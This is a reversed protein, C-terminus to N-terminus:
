SLALGSLATSGTFGVLRRVPGAFVAVIVAFGDGSSFSLDCNSLRDRCRALDRRLRLFRDSFAASSLCEATSSPRLAAFVGVFSSPAGVSSLLRCLSSGSVSLASARSSVVLPPGSPRHPDHVADRWPSCLPACPRAILLAAAPDAQHRRARLSRSLGSRHVVHAFRAQYRIRPRPIHPLSSRSGHERDGIHARRRSGGAVKGGVIVIGPGIGIPGPLPDPLACLRETKRAPRSSATRHAAARRAGRPILTPLGPWACRGPVSRM